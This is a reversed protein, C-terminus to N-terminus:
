GPGAPRNVCVGPEGSAGAAPSRRPRGQRKRAATARRSWGRPSGIPYVPAAAATTCHGDRRILAGAYRWVGPGKWAMAVRCCRSGGGDEALTPEGPRDQLLRGARRAGANPGRRAKKTDRQVPAAGRAIRGGIRHSRVGGCGGQNRCRAAESPGDKHRRHPRPLHRRSTGPQHGAATGAQRRRGVRACTTRPAAIGCSRGDRRETDLM